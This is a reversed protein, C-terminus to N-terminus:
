VFRFLTNLWKSMDIDSDCQTSYIIRADKNRKLNSVSHCLVYTLYFTFSPWKGHSMSNEQVEISNMTSNIHTFDGKSSIM